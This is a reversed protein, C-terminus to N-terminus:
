KGIASFLADVRPTYTNRAVQYAVLAGPGEGATDAILDVNILNMM